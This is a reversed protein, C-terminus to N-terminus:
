ICVLSASSLCICVYSHMCVCVIKRVSCRNHCEHTVNGLARAGCHYVCRRSTPVAIILSHDNNIIGHRKPMQRSHPTIPSWHLLLDGGRPTPDIKTTGLTQRDPIHFRTGYANCHAHSQTPTCANRHTRKSTNQTMSIRTVTYSQTCHM